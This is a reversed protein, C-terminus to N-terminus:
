NTSSPAIDRKLLPDSGQSDKASPQAVYMSSLVGQSMDLFM